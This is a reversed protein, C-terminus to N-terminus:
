SGVSVVIEMKEKTVITRIVLQKLHWKSKQTSSLTFCVGTASLPKINKLKSVLYIYSLQTREYTLYIYHIFYASVSSSAAKFCLFFIM